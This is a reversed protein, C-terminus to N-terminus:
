PHGYEPVGHVSGHNAMVTYLDVIVQEIESVPM